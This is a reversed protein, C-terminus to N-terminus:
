DPIQMEFYFPIRKSLVPKKATHNKFNRTDLDIGLMSGNIDM